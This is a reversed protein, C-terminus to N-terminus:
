AAARVRDGPRREAAVLPRGPAVWPRGDPVNLYAHGGHGPGLNSRVGGSSIMEPPTEAGKSRTSAPAPRPGRLRQSGRDRCVTLRQQDETEACPGLGGCLKGFEGPVNVAISLQKGAEAKKGFIRAQTCVPTKPAFSAANT